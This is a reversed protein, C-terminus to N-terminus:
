NPAVPGKVLRLQHRVRSAALVPIFNTIRADRSLEEIQKEYLHEVVPLPADVHRAISEVAPLKASEDMDASRVHTPTCMIAAIGPM